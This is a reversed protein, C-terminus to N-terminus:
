SVLCCPQWITIFWGKVLLVNPENKGEVHAKLISTIVM